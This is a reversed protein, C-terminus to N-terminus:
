KKRPRGPRLTRSTTVKSERKREADARVESPEFSGFELYPQTSRKIAKMPAVFDIKPMPPAKCANPPLSSPGAAGPPVSDSGWEGRRILLVLAQGCVSNAAEDGLRARVSDSLAGGVFAFIAGVNDWRPWGGAVLATELILECTGPAAAERLAERVLDINPHTAAATARRRTVSTPGRPALAPGNGLVGRKYERKVIQM